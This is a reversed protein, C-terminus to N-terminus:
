VGPGVDRVAEDYCAGLVASRGEARRDVPRKGRDDYRGEMLNTFTKPQCMADLDIRWGRDNEGRCFRSSRIKELAATWGDIGGADRLRLRVARRRKANILQARPLNVEAALANFAEIASAITADDALPIDGNPSLPDEIETRDTEEEPRAMEACEAPLTSAVQSVTTEALNEPAAGADIVIFGARELTMLDVTCTANIRRGVWEADFPIRNEYRSALLWIGSLHAKSADPLRSYDYDELLSTHLKIWPPTREKYHQHKAWNKVSFFRTM